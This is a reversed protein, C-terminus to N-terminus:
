CLAGERLHGLINAAVIIFIFFDFNEREGLAGETIQGCNAPLYFAIKLYQQM